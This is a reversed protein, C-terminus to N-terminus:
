ACQGSLLVVISMQNAHRAWDLATGDWLTDRIDTRAGHELLASVAEDHGGWVAQHLPTSHAHADPPNFRDPSEGAELLLRLVSTQGRQAALALAFHREKADADPLLRRAGALDGSGAAATLTMPAGLRLLCEAAQLEGHALATPLAGAPHAGFKVLLEILPQQAGAERVVRSSAVLGLTEDVDARNSAAGRELLLRAIEVINPPLSDNRVPNEAVFALLAPARFYNEGEFRAHLSVLDPHTDLLRRLAAVDGDDMAEVAARFIPSDIRDLLSANPMASGVRAKLRAWSVFGYERAIAFLGDSWSLEADAIHTDSASEFRPHFERIRQCATLDGCASKALLDRAQGKLHDLDPKQPLRKTPM